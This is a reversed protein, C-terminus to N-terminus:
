PGRTGSLAQLERQVADHFARVEREIIARDLGARAMQSAMGTAVQRWYSEAARGHRKALNEATRRIKGTRMKAPFVLVEGPPSVLSQQLRDISM